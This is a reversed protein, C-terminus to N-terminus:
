LRRDSLRRTWQRANTGIVNALNVAM